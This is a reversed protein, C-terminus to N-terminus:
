RAAPPDDHPTDFANHGGDVVGWRFADPVPSPSLDAAVGRRADRPRLADAQRTGAAPVRVVLHVAALAPLPIVLLPALSRAFLLTIPVMLLCVISLFVAGQRQPTPDSMAAEEVNV